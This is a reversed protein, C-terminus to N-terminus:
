KSNLKTILTREETEIDISYIANIRRRKRDDALAPDIGDETWWEKFLVKARAILQHPKNPQARMQRPKGNKPFFLYELKMNFQAGDNLQFYYLKM